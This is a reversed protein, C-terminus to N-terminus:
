IGVVCWRDRAAQGDEGEAALLRKGMSGGGMTM